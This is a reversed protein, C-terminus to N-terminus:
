CGDIIPFNIKYKLSLKIVIEEYEIINNRILYNLLAHEDLSYGGDTESVDRDKTQFIFIIYMKSLHIYNNNCVKGECKFEKDADNEYLILHEDLMLFEKGQLKKMLYQTTPHDKHTSDVFIKKIM